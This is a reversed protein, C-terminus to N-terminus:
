LRRIRGHRALFPVCASFLGQSAPRCELSLIQRPHIGHKLSGLQLQQRTFLSRSVLRGLFLTGSRCTRGRPPQLDRPNAHLNSISSSPPFIMQFPVNNGSLASQRTRAPAAITQEDSAGRLARAAVWVCEGSLEGAALGCLPAVPVAGAGKPVCVGDPPRLM